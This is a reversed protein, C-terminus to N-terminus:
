TVSNLVKDLLAIDEDDLEIQKRSCRELTKNLEILLTYTPDDAIINKLQNYQEISIVQDVRAHMITRMYQVRLIDKPDLLKSVNKPQITREHNYPKLASRSRHHQM